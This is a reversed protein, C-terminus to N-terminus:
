RSKQNEAKLLLNVIREKRTENKHWIMHKKTVLEKLTFRIDDQWSENRQLGSLREQWNNNKVVLCNKNDQAIRTYPHVDSVIVPKEYYGAELMKLESKCRNFKNNLLPILCIGKDYFLEHYETTKRAHEFTAHPMETKIKNWEPDDAYGCVTLDIGNLMRLDFRHTVSGQYFVKDTFQNGEIPMASPDIGNGIVAWNPNFEGVLKGLHEHTVWVEDANKLQWETCASYNARKYFNAGVHSKPLYWYDDVDMIIKVGMDRLLKFVPEPNMKPSINRSFLVYDFQELKKHDELQIDDLTPTHQVHFGEEHMIKMPNHLRHYEVGGLQQYVLLGKM